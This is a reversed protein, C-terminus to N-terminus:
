GDTNPQCDTNSQMREWTLKRGLNLKECRLLAGPLRECTEMLEDASKM